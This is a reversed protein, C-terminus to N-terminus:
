ADHTVVQCAFRRATSHTQEHPAQVTYRRGVKSSSGDGIAVVEVAMGDDISDVSVPVSIVALDKAWVTEGSDADQPAPNGNRIRAKGEYAVVPAVPLYTGSAEDWDDETPEGSTTVRITDVMLSEAQARLEPLAAAIDDGLM